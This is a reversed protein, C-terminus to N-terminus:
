SNVDNLAEAVSEGLNTRKYIRGTKENPNLIEVLEKEKLDSLARSVLNFFTNSNTNFIKKVLESPMMPKDLALLTIKRNKARKVYSLENLLDM